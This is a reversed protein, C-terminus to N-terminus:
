SEIIRLVYKKRDRAALCNVLTRIADATRGQKGIIKGVESKPARVEILTTGSEGSNEYVMLGEPSDVLGSVIAQVYNKM